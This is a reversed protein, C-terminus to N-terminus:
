ANGHETCWGEDGGGERERETEAKQEQEEATASGKPLPELPKRFDGPAGLIRRGDDISGFAGPL